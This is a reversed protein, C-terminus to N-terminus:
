KTISPLSSSTQSYVIWTISPVVATGGSSLEPVMEPSETTHVRVEVNNVTVGGRPAVRNSHDISPVGKPRCVGAM